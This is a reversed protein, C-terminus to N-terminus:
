RRDIESMLSDARATLRDLMGDIASAEATDLAEALHRAFRLVVPTLDQYVKRGRPTLSLFAERLDARNLQRTVYGKEELASVARSVKTKHMRAAVGIDKATIGRNQGLTVLVRWEPLALGFRKDILTGLSQNLVEALVDLRHPLFRDLRFDMEASLAAGEPEYQVREDM